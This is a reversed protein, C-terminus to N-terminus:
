SKIKINYEFIKEKACLISAFYMFYFAYVNNAQVVAWELWLVLPGTNSVQTCLIHQILVLKSICSLISYLSGNHMVTSVAM